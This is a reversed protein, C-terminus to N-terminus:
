IYDTRRGSAMDEWRLQGFSGLDVCISSIEGCFGFLSGLVVVLRYCCTASFLLSPSRILGNVNSMVGTRDVM